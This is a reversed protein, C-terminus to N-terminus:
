FSELEFEFFSDSSHVIAPPNTDLFTRTMRVSYKIITRKIGIREYEMNHIYEVIGTDGVRYGLSGWWMGLNDARQKSIDDGVYRVVDGRSFTM